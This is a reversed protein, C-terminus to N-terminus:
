KKEKLWERIMQIDRKTMYSEKLPPLEALTSYFERTKEFNIRAAFDGPLPASPSHLEYRDEAIFIPSVSLKVSNPVSPLHFNYLSFFLMPNSVPYSSATDILSFDTPLSAPSYTANPSAANGPARGPPLPAAQATDQRASRSVATQTSCAKTPSKGSLSAEKRTPEPLSVGAWSTKNLLGEAFSHCAVICISPIDTSPASVFLQVAPYGNGSAHLAKEHMGTPRGLRMWGDVWERLGSEDYNKVLCTHEWEASGALSVILPSGTFSAGDSSDSFFQGDNEDDVSAQIQGDRGLQSIPPVPEFVLFSDNEPFTQYEFFSQHPDFVANKGIKIKNANKKAQFGYLYPKKELQRTQYALIPMAAALVFYSNTPTITIAAPIEKTHNIPKGGAGTRRKNTRTGPSYVPKGLSFVTYSRGNEEIAKIPYGMLSFVSNAYPLSDPHSLTKELNDFQKFILADQFRVARSSCGLLLIILCPFFLKSVTEFHSQAPFNM